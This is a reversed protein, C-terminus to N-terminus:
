SEALYQEALEKLYFTETKDKFKIQIADDEGITQVSGDSSYYHEADLFTVSCHGNIPFSSWPTDIYEKLEYTWEDGHYTICYLNRGENKSHFVLGVIGGDPNEAADGYEAASVFEYRIEVNESSALWGYNCFYQYCGFIGVCCLVAIMVAAVIRRKVKRRLKKFPQLEKRNEAAAASRLPSDEKMARYYSRCQPCQALHEEVLKTSAESTLGDIYSPLLDRIIDCHMM